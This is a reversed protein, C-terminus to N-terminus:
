APWRAPISACYWTAVHRATAPGCECVFAYIDSEWGSKLHSVDSVQLPVQDPWAGTLYDQLHTPLDVIM